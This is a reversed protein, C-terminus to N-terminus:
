VIVPAVMLLYEGDDRLVTMGHRAAVTQAKVNDRRVYSVILEAAQQTLGDHVQLDFLARSARRGNSLETGQASLSVAGMVLTLTAIDDGDVAITGHEHSGCAVLKGDEFLMMLRHGHSGRRAGEYSLAHQRFWRQVERLSEPAGPASCEFAELLQRDAKRQAGAPHVSRADIM